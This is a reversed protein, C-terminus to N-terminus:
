NSYIPFTITFNQRFDRNLAKMLFKNAKTNRNVNYNFLITYIGYVIFACHKTISRKQIVQQFWSIM